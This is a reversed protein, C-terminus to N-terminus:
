KAGAKKLMDIIEANPRKVHKAYELVSHGDEDKANVNAGAKILASVISSDNNVIALM